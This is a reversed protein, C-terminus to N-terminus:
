TPKTDNKERLFSSPTQAIPKIHNSSWLIFFTVKRHNVLTVHFDYVPPDSDRQQKAYEVGAAKLLTSIAREHDLELL